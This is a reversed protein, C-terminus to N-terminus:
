YRVTITVRRNKYQNKKDVPNVGGAGVVRIPATVKLKQLYARVAKARRLALQKNFKRAPKSQQGTQTYGTITLQKAGRVSSALDRLVRKANPRLEASLYPFIFTRLQVTNNKPKSKSVGKVACTDNLVVFNSDQVTKGSPTTGSLVLEHLGGTVCAKKPMTIVATFDGNGDTTGSAVQVPDSHMTLVYTSSAMLGGGSLSAEAGALPADVKLELALKLHVDDDTAPPPTSPSSTPTPSSTPSPPTTSPSPSVTPSSSPTPSPSVSPSPSPTVVPSGTYTYSNLLTSSGGLTSIVVEVPGTNISAPITCTAQTPSLVTVSTCAPGGMTVASAGTLNTGTITLVGGGAVDGSAPSISTITPAPLYTHAAVETDAGGPTTLVVNVPGLGGGAPITCTAQTPSVVTVSTCPNGGVSIASTGTLNTGTVTMQGGGTLPGSVPLVTTISPLGYYTYGALRTATGGPATAVVNVAGAIGPPIVCTVSTPSVVVVSTCPAGGISVASTGTLGTGTITLTGGGVLPGGVPSVSTVTPTALYTYAGTKTDTGNPSTVVVDAAGASGPPLTCTVSTPSVVVVSGCPAGGVTVTTTGTLNTGTITLTGGGTLTGSTPAVSTIGPPITLAFTMSVAGDGGAVASIPASLPYGNGGSGAAPSNGALTSTAAPMATPDIYTSGGGGGAGIYQIGSVRTDAGGGGGGSYGGGGDGGRRSGIVGGAGGAAVTGPAASGGAAGATTGTGAAGGTGNAAGAGGGGVLYYGPYGADTGAVGANGGGGYSLSNTDVGAGGGGAGAIVLTGLLVNMADYVFVASGGGGGAGGLGGSPVGAAGGAGVAIGLHDAGVPLTAWGSVVAGKGGNGWYSGSRGGGGGAGTVQLGVVLAGVPVMITETGPVTCTAQVSLAPTTTTCGAAAQAASGLGVAYGTTLLTATGAVM